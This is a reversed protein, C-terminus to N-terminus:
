GLRCEAAAVIERVFQLTNTTDAPVAVNAAQRNYPASLKKPPVSIVSFTAKAESTRACSPCVFVHTVTAEDVLASRTWKMEIVCNPCHPPDLQELSKKLKDVM